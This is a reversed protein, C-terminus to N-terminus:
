DVIEVHVLRGERAAAAKILTRLARAVRGRRGIVRGLDEDDVRLELVVSREGAVEHVEVAEPRSVLQRAVYELLEKM